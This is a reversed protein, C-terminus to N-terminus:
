STHYVISINSPNRVQQLKNVRDNHISEENMNVQKSQQLKDVLYNHISEENMNVQKSQQLKDVLYNHISEENMNVQKSQQLFNDPRNNRSLPRNRGKAKKSNERKQEPNYPKFNIKRNNNNRRPKYVYNPHKKSHEKKVVLALAKFFDHYEEELENWLVTSLKKAIPMLQQKNLRYIECIRKATELIGHRNLLNTYIINSNSPRKIKGNEESNELLKLLGYKELWNTYPLNINDGEPIELIVKTTEIDNRDIAKKLSKLVDDLRYKEDNRIESNIMEETFNKSIM